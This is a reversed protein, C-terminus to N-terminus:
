IKGQPGINPHYISTLLRARPPKNPFEIPIELELEFASRGYIKSSPLIKGTVIGYRQESDTKLKTKRSEDEHFPTRDILFRKRDPKDRYARELAKLANFINKAEPDM